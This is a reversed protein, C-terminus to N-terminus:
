IKYWGEIEQAIRYDKHSDIYLNYLIEQIEDESGAEVIQLTAKEIYTM